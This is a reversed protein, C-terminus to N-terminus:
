FEVPDSSKVPLHGREEEASDGSGDGLRLPRPLPPVACSAPFSLLCAVALECHM